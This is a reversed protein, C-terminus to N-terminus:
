SGWRRKWPMSGGGGGGGGGGGTRPMPRSTVADRRVGATKAIYDPDAPGGPVPVLRGDPGRMWGFNYKEPEPDYKQVLRSEGSRVEYIGGPGEVYEPTRDKIMSATFAEPNAEFLLRAEDDDGYLSGALERLQAMQAEAKEQEERARWGAQVRDLSGGGRGNLAGGVDAMTAGIVQWKKARDEKPTQLDPTLTPMRKMVTGNGIQRDVMGGREAEVRFDNPNSNVYQRGSSGFLGRLFDMAM